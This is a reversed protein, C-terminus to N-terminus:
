ETTDPDLCPRTKATNQYSHFTLISIPIWYYINKIKDKTCHHKINNIDNNCNSNVSLIENVSYYQLHGKSKLHEVKWSVVAYVFYIVFLFVM